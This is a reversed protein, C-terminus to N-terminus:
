WIVSFRVVTDDYDPEPYYYGPRPIISANYSRGARLNVEENTQPEIFVLGRDTTDFAVIAHGSGNPFYINVYACRMGLMAASAKVDASFDTCNYDEIHYERDSTPDNELFAAMMEYTPDSLVYGYGITLRDYNVELAALASRLSDVTAHTGSLTAETLALAERTEQLDRDISTLDARTANLDAEVQLFQGRTHALVHRTDNLDQRLVLLGAALVVIVIASLVVAPLLIRFGPGRRESM